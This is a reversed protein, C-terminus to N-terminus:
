NSKSVTIDQIRLHFIIDTLVSIIDSNNDDLMKQEKAQTIKDITKWTKSIINEKRKLVYRITEESM